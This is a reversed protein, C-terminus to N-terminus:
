RVNRCGNLHCGTGTRAVSAAHLVFRYVFLDDGEVFFKPEHRQGPLMPVGDRNGFVQCHTVRGAFDRPRDHM